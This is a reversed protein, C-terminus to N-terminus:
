LREYIKITKMAMVEVKFNETAYDFADNAIIKAKHRDNFIEFICKQLQFPDGANFLMGYKGGQLIEPIAGGTSGIIPVRQFMAEILVLGLGEWDSPLCFVDFVTMLNVANDVYGVFNVQKSIGLNQVTNLLDEKLPGEGIIALHINDNNIAALATLLVNINKQSTLRGIFGILFKDQPCNIENRTHPQIPSVPLPVGYHITQIATPPLGAKEIMHNRVHDTIAIFQVGKKALINFWKKYYRNNYAPLDAHVSCVIKKSGVMKAVLPFHFLNLHLHFIKNNHKKFAKTIKYYSYLVRLKKEIKNHRKLIEPLRIIEINVGESELKELIASTKIGIYHCGALLTVNVGKKSLAPLLVMLHNEAGSIPNSIREDSIQWYHLIEM